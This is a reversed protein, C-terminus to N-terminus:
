SREGSEGHAAAGISRKRGTGSRVEKGQEWMGDGGGGLDRRGDGGGGAVRGRARGWRDRRQAAGVGVEGPQNGWWPRWGADGIRGGRM